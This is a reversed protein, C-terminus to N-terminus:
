VFSRTTGSVKEGVLQKKDVNSLVRVSTGEVKEVEDVSVGLEKARAAYAAELTVEIGKEIADSLKCRPLDAARKLKNSPSEAKRLACTPCCYRANSKNARGNFLACIQHVWSHCEDCNVWGEEPLHDNKFDQLENKRVKTGDDLQVLEAPDM